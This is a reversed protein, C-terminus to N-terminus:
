WDQVERGSIEPRFPPIRLYVLAPGAVKGLQDSFLIWYLSLNRGFQRSDDIFQNEMRRRYHKEGQTCARTGASCTDEPSVSLKKFIRKM